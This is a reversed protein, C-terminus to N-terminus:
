GSAPRKRVGLRESFRARCNIASLEPVRVRWHGLAAFGLACRELSCPGFAADISLGELSMLARRVRATSDISAM